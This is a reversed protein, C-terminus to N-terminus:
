IEGRQARYSTAKSNRRRAGMRQRQRERELKLHRLCYRSFGNSGKRRSPAARAGCRVCRGEARREREREAQSKAV